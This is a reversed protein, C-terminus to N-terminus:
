LGYRHVQVHLAQHLGDEAPDHRGQPPEHRARVAQAPCVGGGCQTAHQM